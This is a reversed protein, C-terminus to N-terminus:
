KDTTVFNGLTDAITGHSLPSKLLIEILHDFCGFCSYPILNALLLSNNTAENDTVCCVIQNSNIRYNQFIEDVKAKLDQVLYTGPFQDCALTLQRIKWQNDIFHITLAIYSETATSTWFNITYSFSKDCIINRIKEKIELAKNSVRLAFGKRDEPQYGKSVTKMFKRFYISEVLSLPLEDLIVM